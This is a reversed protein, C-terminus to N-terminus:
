VPTSGRPPPCGPSDVPFPSPLPASIFSPEDSLAETFATESKGEDAPDGPEASDSKGAGGRDAAGGADDGVPDSKGAGGRDAAGGADDGTASSKWGSTGVSRWTPVTAAGPSAAGALPSDDSVSRSVVAKSAPAGSGSSASDAAGGSSCCRTGPALMARPRYRNSTKWP